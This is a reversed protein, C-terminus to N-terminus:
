LSCDEPRILELPLRLMPNSIFIVFWSAGSGQVHILIPREDPTWTTILKLKNKIALQQLSLRTLIKSQNKVKRDEQVRYWGAPRRPNKKDESIKQLRDHIPAPDQKLLKV